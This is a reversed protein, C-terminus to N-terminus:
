IQENNLSNEERLRMEINQASEMFGCIQLIRRIAARSKIILFHGLSYRSNKIDLILSSMNGSWDQDLVHPRLGFISVGKKKFYSWSDALYYPYDDKMIEAAARNLAYGHTLFGDIVKAYKIGQSDCFERSFWYWGSLLVVKPDNGTLFIDISALVKSLDGSVIVDDELILVKEESGGLFKRYCLQHSLTCGIEGALPKRYVSKCFKEVDFRRAVEDESMCRGDVADVFEYDKIDEKSLLDRMYNRRDLSRTLSVVFTKM